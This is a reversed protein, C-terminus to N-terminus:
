FDSTCDYYLYLVYAGFLYLCRKIPTLRRKFIHLLSFVTAITIWGIIAPYWQDGVLLRAILAISGTITGAVPGLYAFALIVAAYRIDYAFGSQKISLLIIAVSVFGGYVGVWLHFQKIPKPNILSRIVLPTCVLLSFISLNVIYKLIIM